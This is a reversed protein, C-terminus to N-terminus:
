GPELRRVGGVDTVAHGAVPGLVIRHRGGVLVEHGADDDVHALRDRRELPPEVASRAAEVGPHVSVAGREGDLFLRAEVDEDALTAAHRAVAPGIERVLFKVVDAQGVSGGAGADEVAVIASGREIEDAGRAIRQPDPAFVAVAVVTAQGGVDAGVLLAGEAGRGQAANSRPRAEHVRSKERRERVDDGEEISAAIRAAGVKALAHKRRETERILLLGVQDREQVGEFAGAGGGIESALGQRYTM